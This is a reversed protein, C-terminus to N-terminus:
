RRSATAPATTAALVATVTFPLSPWRAGGEKQLTRQCVRDPAPPLPPAQAAMDNVGRHSPLVAGRYGLIGLADTGPCALCVDANIGREADSATLTRGPMLSFLNEGKLLCGGAPDEWDTIYRFPALPAGGDRPAGPPLSM